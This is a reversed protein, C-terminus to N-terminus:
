DTPPPRGFWQEYLDAYDGAEILQLLEINIRERLPDDAAVAFGYQQQHFPAGALRTSGDGNNVAFQLIAADHVVADVQGAELALYADAALPFEITPIGLRDLHAAAESDAPVAVQHGPLDDIGGIAGEIEDLTFATAIGATFYALLFLGSFMWVLGVVRGAKGKPTKDGYGVTTATVSAWWFAEWIGTRYEKPFDEDRNRETLWVVHAAITIAVMLVVVLVLLDRSFIRDILAGLTGGFFGGDNDGVMVQLGTEVFPHSFNVQEERGATIGIAAVGVDAERRVVEDVLKPASNVSYIEGDAGVNEAIREWLDITFGTYEGQDFFVFPPSLRTVVRVPGVPEAEPGNASVPEHLELGADVHAATADALWGDIDARHEAIWEAAHLTIDDAEATNSVMRANQAEIDALPITFSELLSALAPHQDLVSRSAVARIDSPAFGLLCPDALCGTVGDVETLPEQDAIEDPLSPFPAPLWVVEDGPTLVGTTWNPTFSYYLISGGAEYRDAAARMLPGYDGQIQEVTDALGYADLHHDVIPGCAWQVRCGILNARGDGDDDFAAAIEPEALDGLDNIGLREVTARDALYGQLAGGDVELGIPVIEDRGDVFTDHLPFWGNVWLDVDGGAVGDYFAQNEMTSPGNVRYGLEGILESIIEAQFWGTDWTARAVRVTEGNGPVGGGPPPAAMLTGPLLAGVSMVLALLGSRRIVRIRGTSQM